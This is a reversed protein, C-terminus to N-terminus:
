DTPDYKFKDLFIIGSGWYKEHDEPDGKHVGIYIEGTSIRKNMYVYAQSYDEQNETQQSTYINDTM